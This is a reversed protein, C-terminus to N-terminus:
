RVAFFLRWALQDNWYVEAYGSASIQYATNAVASQTGKAKTVPKPDPQQFQQKNMYWKVTVTGDTPPTLTALLYIDQGPKFAKMQFPIYRRDGDTAVRDGLSASAIVKAGPFFNQDTAPDPIVATPSAKLNQPQTRGGTIFQTVGKLTGSSQLFYGVGGCLLLCVVLVSILGNIARRHSILPRPATYMPPVTTIEALPEINQGPLLHDALEQPILQLMGTGQAQPPLAPPMAINGQYIAPLMSQVPQSQQEPFQGFSQQDPTQGFGQQMPSFSQASPQSWGSPQFSPTTNNNDFSLQPADFAATQENQYEPILSINPAPAGCNRCASADPTRAQQCYPCIMVEEQWLYEILVTQGSFNQGKLIVHAVYIIL